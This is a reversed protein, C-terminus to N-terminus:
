IHEREQLYPIKMIMFTLLDIKVLYYSVIYLLFHCGVGTDKGASPPAQHAVPDCLTSCPQLSKAAATAPFLIRQKKKQMM